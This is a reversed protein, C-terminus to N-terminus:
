PLFVLAEKNQAEANLKEEATWAVREDNCFYADFVDGTYLINMRYINEASSVMVISGDSDLTYNTGNVGYQLYNRLEVDNHLAYVIEMARYNLEEGRDVIAFASEFSEVADAVPYSIIGCYKGDAEIKAKDNYSGWVVSVYDDPNLLGNGYALIEDRLAQTDEYTKFAELEAPSYNLTQKVLVEDIVLYEYQGIKHNNPISYLGEGLITCVNGNLQLEARDNSTGKFTYVLKTLDLKSDYKKIAKRLDATEDYSKFAELQEATYGVKEAITKDIVLYEYITSAQILKKASAKLTGYEDLDLFASIEALKNTAVLEKMLEPSNVLVIDAENGLGALVAKKYEDATFYHVTVETHYTASTYSEIKSKVTIEANEVTDAEKIIYLDLAVDEVTDDVIKDDYKSIDEWEHEGCSVLFMATTILSLFLCIIKKM